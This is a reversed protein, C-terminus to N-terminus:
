DDFDSKVFYYNKGKTIYYNDDAGKGKIYNFTQQPRDNYKLMLKNGNLEFMGRLVEMEETKSNFDNFVFTRDQYFVINIDASHPIFWEGILSETTNPTNDNIVTDNLVTVSISENSTTKAQCQVFSLLCFVSMTILYLKSM